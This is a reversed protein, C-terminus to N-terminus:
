GGGNSEEEEEEEESLLRGVERVNALRGGVIEAAGISPAANHRVEVIQANWVQVGYTAWTDGLATCRSHHICSQFIVGPEWFEDWM